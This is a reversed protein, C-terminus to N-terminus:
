RFTKQDRRQDSSNPGNNALHLVLRALLPAPKESHDGGAKGPLESFIQGALGDKIPM